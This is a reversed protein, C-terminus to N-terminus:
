ISKVEPHAHLCNVEFKPNIAKALERYLKDSGYKCPLLELGQSDRYTGMPCKNVQMLIKNKTIELFEWEFGATVWQPATFILTTALAKTDDGLGLLKKLRHAQARALSQWVEEDLKAANDFGFEREVCVMWYNQNTWYNRVWMSVMEALTEKPLSMLEEKMSEWTVRGPRRELNISM